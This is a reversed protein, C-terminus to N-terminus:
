PSWEWFVISRHPKRLHCQHLNLVVALFLFMELNEEIRRFLLPFVLVVIIVLLLSLELM